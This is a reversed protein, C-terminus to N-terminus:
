DSSSPIGIICDLAKLYTFHIANDTNAAISPRFTYEAGSSIIPMAKVAAPRTAYETDRANTSKLFSSGCTSQSESRPMIATTLVQSMSTAEALIRELTGRPM